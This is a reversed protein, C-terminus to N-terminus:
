YYDYIRKNETNPNGWNQDAILYEFAGKITDIVPIFGADSSVWAVFTDSTMNPLAFEVNHATAGARLIGTMNDFVKLVHAFTESKGMSGNFIDYLLQNHFQIAKLEGNEMFTLTRTRDDSLKPSFIKQIVDFDIGLDEVNQTGLQEQLAKKFSELSISAKLKQPLAIISYYDSVGPLEAFKSLTQMVDNHAVKQMMIATNNVINELPDVIDRESGTRQKTIGKPNKASGLRTVEEEFVRNLPVYFKNWKKTEEYEEQSIMGHKYALEYPYNAFEEIEEVANIVDRDTITTIAIITDTVGIGSGLNKVMYDLNRRAALLVRIETLKKIKEKSKGTLVDSNKVEFAELIRGLGKVVLVGNDDYFGKLLINKIKDENKQQLRLSNYINKKLTWLLYIKGKQNQM